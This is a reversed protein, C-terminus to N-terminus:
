IKLEHLRYNSFDAFEKVIEFALCYRGMYTAVKLITGSGSFCDVIVDDVNSFYFILMETLEKPLKNPTKIKGTWYERPIDLIEVDFDKSDMIDECYWNIKNFTFQTKHKTCVFINYHASVLKKKTFLGFNYKWILQNQIYYGANYIANLIDRQNSWGSIIILSGYKKIKPYVKSIWANSFEAYNAIPIEQYGSIVNDGDRNYNQTHTDGNKIGFPCDTLVVDISANPLLDIAKLCDVHYCANLKFSGIDTKVSNHAIQIMKRFHKTEM